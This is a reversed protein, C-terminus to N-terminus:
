LHFPLPPVDPMAERALFLKFQALGQALRAPLRLLQFPKRKALIFLSELLSDTSNLTEDLAVVLPVSVATPAKVMEADIEHLASIM